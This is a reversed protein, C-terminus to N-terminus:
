QILITAPPTTLPVGNIAASISATGASAATFTAAYRNGSVYGAPGTSGTTGPVVTFTITLGADNVPNGHADLVQLEVTTTDGIGLSDALTSVISAAVSAPGAVVTITPLATTVPLGGIQAGITAPGAATQGRFWAMYSGNDPNQLPGFAGTSGGAQTFGIPVARDGTVLARGAADKGTLTVLVSDGATVTAAGVSVVSQGPSITGAVVEVTPPTTQVPTGEIVATVSDPVGIGLSLATYLTSYTGNGPDAAPGVTGHITPGSVGFIIARGGSTLANGAADRAQLTALAHAGSDLTARSLSILSTQASIDGPIVTITAPISTVPAADVTAQVTLPAGALVGTFTATYTGDGQDVTSGLVGTSTGGTTGFVVIHPATVPCSRSDRTRLTITTTVGSQLTVQRSPSQAPTTDNVTLGSTTLDVPGPTCVVQITPRVTTVPLGGVSARITDPIGATDAVYFASYSGDGQDMVPSIRGVSAGIANSRRFTVALGGQGLPNGFGDRTDLRILSSDGLDVQEPLVSLLSSDPAAPGPIVTILPLHSVGLTDL